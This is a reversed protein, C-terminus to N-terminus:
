QSPIDGDAAQVYHGPYDYIEYTGSGSVGSMTKKRKLEVSPRELDYDDHVYVDPQVERSFDWASVHELDPKVQQTPGIFSLTEYGSVPLHKGTSDTLVMTNKGDSHRFYYGIGEQELLRSM